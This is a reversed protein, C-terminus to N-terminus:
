FHRARELPLMVADSEHDLYPERDTLSVPQAPDPTFSDSVGSGAQAAGARAARKTKRTVAGRTAGDSRRKKGEEAAKVAAKMEEWEAARVAVGGNLLERLGRFFMAVRLGWVWLRMM